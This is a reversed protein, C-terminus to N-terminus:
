KILNVLPVETKTQVMMEEEENKPEPQAKIQTLNKSKGLFHQRLDMQKKGMRAYKNYKRELDSKKFDDGVIFIKRPEKCSDLVKCNDTIYNSRASALIKGSQNEMIRVNILVKDEFITYTGVLIHTGDIAKDLLEPKRTLYYEGYQNISLAGQGRFDSVNFGRIFLEDFFGESLTRGFHTTKEFRHLDVFSTISIDKVKELAIKNSSFLRNALDQITKDITNHSQATPIKEYFEKRLEAETKIKQEKAYSYSTLIALSTILLSTKKIINMM